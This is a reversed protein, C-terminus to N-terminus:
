TKLPTDELGMAALIRPTNSLDGIFRRLPLPEARVLTPVAIIQDGRAAEPRSRIDVVELSYNNKLHRECIKRTNVIARTSRPTPGAVYLRLIHFPIDDAANEMAILLDDAAPPDQM